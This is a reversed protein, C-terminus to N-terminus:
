LNDEVDKIFANFRAHMEDFDTSVSPGNPNYESFYFGLMAQLHGKALQWHQLRMSLCLDSASIDRM